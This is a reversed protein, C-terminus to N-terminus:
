IRDAKHEAELESETYVFAATIIAFCIPALSYYSEGWLFMLFTIYATIALVMDKLLLKLALFYSLFIFTGFPLGYNALLSTVGNSSGEQADASVGSIYKFEKKYKEFGLGFVHKKIIILDTQLDFSRNEASYGSRNIDPDLYDSLKTVVTSYFQVSFITTVLLILGVIFVKQTFTALESRYLFLSFLLAFILYGTTSGTTALSAVLIALCKWKSGNSMGTKTFVIMFIAANLFAQYAGPEFFISNNRVPHYAHRFTYLFGEYGMNGVRPLKTILSDFLNFVDILYGLLSIAALFVVVKIYIETFRAGVTRLILYALVLKISSKIGSEVSLSGGTYLSLLLLLVAFATLYLLFASSIKRDTYLYWAALSIFFVLIILKDPALEYRSTGSVFLLLYVLITIVVTNQAYM